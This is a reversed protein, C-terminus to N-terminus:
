CFLSSIYDGMDAYRRDHSDFEYKMRRRVPHRALNKNWADVRQDSSSQSYGQAKHLETMSDLSCFIGEAFSPTKQEVVM